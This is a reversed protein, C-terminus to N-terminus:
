RLLPNIDLVHEKLYKSLLEENLFTSGEFSFREIVSPLDLLLFSQLMPRSIKKYSYHWPEYKFGDREAETYVLYFGYTNAHEDMWNKLKEYCGGSAFNEPLLVSEPQEVSGDIIDIETGWHHRSTGPIASYKTIKTIALEPEIGNELHKQYKREWITKQRDFSRFGSVAVIRISDQLAAECMAAFADAVEKQLPVTNDSISLNSKGILQAITFEQGIANSLGMSLILLVAIRFSRFNHGM